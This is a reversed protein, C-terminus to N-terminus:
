RDARVSELDEELMEIRRLLHCIWAQLEMSCALHSAAQHHKVSSTPSNVMGTRLDSLKTGLSTLDM